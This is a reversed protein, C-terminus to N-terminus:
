RLKEMALYGLETAIADGIMNPITDQTSDPFIQPMSRKLPRELLEWGIAMALAQGRSAGLISLLAGFGAHVLTFRDVVPYNVEGPRATRTPTPWGECDAAKKWAPAVRIAALGAAEDDGSRLHAVVLDAQNRANLWHPRCAGGTEARLALSDRELEAIQIAQARSLTVFGTPM